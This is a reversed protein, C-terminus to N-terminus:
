LAACRNIEEWLCEVDLRHREPLASSRVFPLNYIDTSLVHTCQFFRGRPALVPIHPPTLQAWM